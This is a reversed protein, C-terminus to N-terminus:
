DNIAVLRRRLELGSLLMLWLNAGWWAPDFQLNIAWFSIAMTGACFMLTLAIMSVMSRRRPDLSGFRGWLGLTAFLIDVPLFSWNWAMVLENRYDAYMLEPSVSVVGICILAAAIWYALMGIETATLLASRVM